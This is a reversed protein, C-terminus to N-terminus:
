RSESYAQHQRPRNGLSRTMQTNPDRRLSANKPPGGALECDDVYFVGQGPNNKSYFMIVVLGRTAGTPADGEVFYREWRRCSLNIDWTPGYVRALEKGNAARWEMHVQGFSSAGLKDSEDATVYAAFGCHYNPTVSFEQAAGEFANASSPAKFLLSQNGTRKTKVTCGIKDGPESAFCNWNEPSFYNAPATVEPSEFGSNLLSLTETPAEESFVPAASAVALVGGALFDWVIMRNRVNFKRFVRRM